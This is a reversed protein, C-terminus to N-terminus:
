HIPFRTLLYQIIVLLVYNYYVFITRGGSNYRAHTDCKIMNLPYANANTITLYICPHVLDNIKNNGQNVPTQTGKNSLPGANFITAQNVIVGSKDVSSNIM